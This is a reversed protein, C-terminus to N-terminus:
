PESAPRRAAHPLLEDCKAATQHGAEAEGEQRAMQPVLASTANGLEGLDDSLQWRRCVIKGTSGFTCRASENADNPYTRRSPRMRESSRALAQLRHLPLSALVEAAVCPLAPILVM